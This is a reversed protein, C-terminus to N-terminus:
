PWWGVQGTQTANFTSSAPCGGLVVPDRYYSVRETVRAWAVCALLLGAIGGAPPTRM